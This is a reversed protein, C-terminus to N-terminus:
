HKGSTRSTKEFNWNSNQCKSGTPVRLRSSKRGPSCSWNDYCKYAADRKELNKNPTFFQIFPHYVVLHVPLCCILGGFYSYVISPLTFWYLTAPLRYVPTFRALFPPCHKPISFSDELNAAVRFDIGGRTTGSLPLSSGLWPRVPRWPFLGRRWSIRQNLPYLNLSLSISGNLGYKNVWTPVVPAHQVRM